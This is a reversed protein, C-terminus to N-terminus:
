PTFTPSPEEPKPAPPAAPKPAPADAKAPTSPASAGAPEDKKKEAVKEKLAKIAEEYEKKAAEIQKDMDKSVAEAQEVVADIDRKAKEAAAIRDQSAKKDAETRGPEKQLENEEEIFRDLTRKVASKDAILRKVRDHQVHMAVHVEYSAEAIDDALKELVSVNHPGLSSKYRELVVFAQNKSRLKKQLQKTIAENLAYSISGSTDASCGAQKLAHQAGGNVRAVIDSRESDWFSKVALAEGQAEAFDASKGAEDSGDIVLEVKSWDPKKLADVHAAFGSTLTKERERADNVAKTAAALEEHYRLAYSSQNASSPLVPGQGSTSCATLLALPAAVLFLSLRM